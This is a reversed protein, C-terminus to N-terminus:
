AEGFNQLSLLYQVEKFLRSMPNVCKDKQEVIDVDKVQEM